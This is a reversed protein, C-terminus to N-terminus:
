IEDRQGVAPIAVTNDGIALKNMAATMSSVPGAIARTLVWGMAAALTAALLGGVIISAEITAIAQAGALTWRDSWTNTAALAADMAHEFSGNRARSTGSQAIALAQPLTSVDGALRLEPDAADARWAEHAAKVDDILSLIHPEAESSSRAAALNKDFAKRRVDSADRDAASRTIMYARVKAQEAYVDGRARDLSDVAADSVENLKEAGALHLTTVFLVTCMITVVAVILAFGGMMKKSIQLDSLKM